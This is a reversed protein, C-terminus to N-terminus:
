ARRRGRVEISRRLYAPVDYDGQPVPLSAYVSHVLARRDAEYRHFERIKAFLACLMKFV